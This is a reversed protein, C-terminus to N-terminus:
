ERLSEASNTLARWVRAKPFLALILTLLMLVFPPWGPVLVGELRPAVTTGPPVVRATLLAGLKLAIVWSAHLGVAMWIAGTWRVTSGLLVGALFLTGFAPVLRDVSALGALMEGLVRWGSSWDIVPPSQVRSLFHVAAYFAAALPIARSWGM